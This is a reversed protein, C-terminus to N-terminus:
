FPKGHTRRIIHQAMFPMMNFSRVFLDSLVPAGFFGQLVRGTNLRSEFTKRWQKKYGEELGARNTKQHVLREIHAVALKSSHLAMSM